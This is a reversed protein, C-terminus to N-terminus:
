QKHYTFGAKGPRLEIVISAILLCRRDLIRVMEVSVRSAGDNVPRGFEDFTPRRPHKLGQKVM